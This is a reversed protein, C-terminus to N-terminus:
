NHIFAMGKRPHSKTNLTRYLMNPMLTLIHYATAIFRFTFFRFKCNFLSLFPSYKPAVTCTIGCIVFSILLLTYRAPLADCDSITMVSIPPVTPSISLVGKKSAILCTALSTPFSFQKYMCTVSIGYREFLPSIFVFGVCCETFSNSEM